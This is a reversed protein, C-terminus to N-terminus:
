DYKLNNNKNILNDPLDFKNKLHSIWLNPTPLKNLKSDSPVKTKKIMNSLSKIPILNYWVQLGSVLYGDRTKGQIPIIHDVDYKTGDRKSLYNRIKFIQKVLKRDNWVPEGLKLGKRRRSKVAAASIKGKETKYYDKIKQLARAKLIPDNKIREHHIKNHKKRVKQGKDTSYYKKVASKGKESKFFKSQAIRYKETKQYKKQSIKYGESQNMKKRLIKGKESQQFKKVAVKGKDSQVYKKVAVKGKDSQFYKKQAIKFKDTKQYKKQANKYANSKWYEKLRQKYKDSQRYKLAKEKVCAPSCAKQLHHKKKFSKNCVDCISTM